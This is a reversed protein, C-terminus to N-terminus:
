LGGPPEARESDTTEVGVELRRADSRSLCGPHATEIARAERLWVRARGRDGLAAHTLGRYLAYEARPGDGYRRSEPEIALLAQEAEPYLGDSFLSEARALRGACGSMVLVAPLVARLVLALARRM